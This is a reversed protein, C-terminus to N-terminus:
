PFALPAASLIQVEVPNCGVLAIVSADAGGVPFDGYREVLEAM